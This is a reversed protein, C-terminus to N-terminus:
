KWSCKRARAPALTFPVLRVNLMNATNAAVIPLQVPFGDRWRVAAPARPWLARRNENFQLRHHQTTVRACDAAPEHGSRRQKGGAAVRPRLYMCARKSGAAWSRSISRCGCHRSNGAALVKFRFDSANRGTVSIRTVRAAESGANRIRLRGSRKTGTRVDGLDQGATEAM